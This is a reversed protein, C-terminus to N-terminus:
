DWRDLRYEAVMTKTKVRLRAEWTDHGTTFALGCASMEDQGELTGKRSYAEITSRIQHLESRLTEPFIALGNFRSEKAGQIIFVVGKAHNTYKGEAGGWMHPSLTLASVKNWGASIGWQDARSGGNWFYWSVPNRHEETDWQLIPPADADVATLLATFSTSGHPVYIDIEVADPLVTRRFKEWTVTLAPAKTGGVAIDKGKAKLHGFVGERKPEEAPQVPKWLAEVEELRAFRRRLSAAIGMREVIKEAQEINGASPPAQPRQYQLPHMKEAFKRKVDDYPLGAAIDELLTGIMSSRPHCFGPPAAAVFRWLINAKAAGGKVAERKDHLDLLWEAVGLCKESRYLSEMKLLTVAQVIVERPFEQLATIMNKFDERKEAMAQGATQVLSKFLMTKPPTVAFHHWLGTVPQGWVKDSSLFIGMVKARRVIREMAAASPAYLPPADDVNWLAPSILGQESITVLGGYREMFHRCAHCTHYQRWEEPFAALYADFIGSADTTFLREGNEVNALFREQFRAMYEDYGHDHRVVPVDVDTEVIQAQM